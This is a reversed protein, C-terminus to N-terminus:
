FPPFLPAFGLRPLISANMFLIWFFCIFVGFAAYILITFVNPRVQKPLRVSAYLDLWLYVPVFVTGVVNQFTIIEGPLAWGSLIMMSACVLRLTIWGINILRTDWKEMYKLSKYQSLWVVLNVMSRGSMGPMFTTFLTLWIVFLFLYWGVDGLVVKFILAQEVAVRLGRPVLGRPVLVAYVGISFLYVSLITLGIFIVSNDFWTVKMWEMYNHLNEKTMKFTFGTPYIREVKGRLGTVRGQYHSMGYRGERCNFSYGSGIAISSGSYNIAAWLFMMDVGAPIWGFKFMGIFVDAFHQPTAVFGLMIATGILIIVCCTFSFRRLFTFIVRPGAMIATAILMNFIAYGEWGLGWPVIPIPYNTIALLSTAALSAFGPLFLYIATLPLSTVEHYFPVFRDRIQPTAVEATVIAKRGGEQAFWYQALCGLLYMWLIDPGYQCVLTPWFFIEGSGIAASAAVAGPGLLKMKGLWTDPAPPMDRIKMPPYRFKGYRSGWYVVEEDGLKYIDEDGWKEGTKEGLDQSM